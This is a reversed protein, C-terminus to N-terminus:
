WVGPGVEAAQLKMWDRMHSVADKVQIKSLRGRASRRQINSDHVAAVSTIFKALLSIFLEGIWVFSQSETLEPKSNTKRVCSILYYWWHFYLTYLCALCLDL